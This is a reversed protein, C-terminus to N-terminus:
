IKGEIKRKAIGFWGKRTEKSLSNFEGLRYLTRGANASYVEMQLYFMREALDEVTEKPLVILKKMQYDVDDTATM